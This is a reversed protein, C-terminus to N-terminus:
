QYYYTTTTTETGTISTSTSPRNSSNYTFTETSVYNDAPDISALTTKIINNASFFPNLNLIPADSVFQLPNIQSDYEYTYTEILDYNSNAEDYYYIKESLLNNVIYSYETKTAPQYGFGVDTYDIESALRGAGDYQFVISDRTPMGFFSFVSVANKYRNNADDYNVITVISDIGITVFNNSNITQKQIIGSTNRVYSIRLDLDQGSEVGSLKFSTIKNSNYSFEAVSSDSGSKVVMKVLLTGTVSGGGGGGNMNTDTVEKQCSFLFLSGLGTLIIFFRKM